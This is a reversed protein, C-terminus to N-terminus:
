RDEEAKEFATLKARRDAAEKRLSKIEAQWSASLSDFSDTSIETPATQEDPALAPTPVELESPM